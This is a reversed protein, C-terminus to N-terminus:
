ALPEDPMINEAQEQRQRHALRKIMERGEELHDTGFFSIVTEDDEALEEFPITGFLEKVTELTDWDLLYKSVHQPVLQGESNTPTDDGCYQYLVRYKFENRAVQNFKTM